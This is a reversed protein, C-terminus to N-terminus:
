TFDPQAPRAFQLLFAIEVLLSVIIVVLLLIIKSPAKLASRLTIAPTTTSYFRLLTIPQVVQATLLLTPALQVLTNAVRM